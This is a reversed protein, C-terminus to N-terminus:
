ESAGGPSTQVAAHAANEIRAGLVRAYSQMHKLQIRMLDATHADLVKFQPTDLFAGLGKMKARLQYLEERMRSLFDGPAKQAANRYEQLERLALYLLRDKESEERYEVAVGIADQIEEDTLREDTLKNITM